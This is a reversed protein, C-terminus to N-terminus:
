RQSGFLSSIIDVGTINTKSHNASENKKIIEDNWSKNNIYTALDKRYQKDPTAKVYHPIHRMAAERESESLEEWKKKLKLYDGRKKDYAKWVYEFDINIENTLDIVDSEKVKSKKVKSEKVKSQPNKDVNVGSVPTKTSMLEMLKDKTYAKVGRRSYVQSLNEVFNESFIIKYQFLDADLAHLRVLTELINNATEGSVRTKALLFEYTDTENLDLFHNETAGLMELLKFWFSYGDNGFKTEITYLTKKHTVYHPFYDVVAKAPRSMHRQKKFAGSAQAGPM